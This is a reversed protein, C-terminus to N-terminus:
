RLNVGTERRVASREAMIDMVLTPESERSFERISSERTERLTEGREGGSGRSGDNSHALLRVGCMHRHRRERHTLGYEPRQGGALDSLQWM